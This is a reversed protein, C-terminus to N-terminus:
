RKRVVWVWFAAACGLVVLGGWVYNLWTMTQVEVLQASLVAVFEAVAARVM